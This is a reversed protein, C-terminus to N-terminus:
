LLNNGNNGWLSHYKVIKACISLSITMKLTSLAACMETLPLRIELSSYFNKSYIDVPMKM